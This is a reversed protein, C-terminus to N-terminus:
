KMTEVIHSAEAINTLARDLAEEDANDKHNLLDTYAHSVLMDLREFRERENTPFRPGYDDRMYDRM